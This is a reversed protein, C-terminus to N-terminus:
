KCNVAVDKAPGPVLRNKGVFLQYVKNRLELRHLPNEHTRARYNVAPHDHMCPEFKNKQSHAYAGHLYAAPCVNRSARPTVGNNSIIEIPLIKSLRSAVRQGFTELDCISYCEKIFELLARLEKKTLREM